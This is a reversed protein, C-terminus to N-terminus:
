LPRGGLPSVHAQLWEVLEHRSFTGDAIGMILHFQEHDDAVIEHQNVMLMLEMAAHGIRKNGDVFAHNRILSYGLAATAKTLDPYLPTADFTLRPQAIASDLAGFDRIGAAGGSAQMIKDYLVLLEALSVYKM